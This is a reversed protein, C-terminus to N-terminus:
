VHNVMNKFCPQGCFSWTYDMTLRTEHRPKNGGKHGHDVMNKALGHNIKIEHDQLIVMTLLTEDVVHNIAARTVM